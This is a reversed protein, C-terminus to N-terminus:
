ATRTWRTSCRRRSTRSSRREELRARDRLRGRGDDRARESIRYGVLGESTERGERKAASAMGRERLLTRAAEIDGGADVLARKADM